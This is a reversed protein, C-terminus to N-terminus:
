SSIRLRVLGNRYVGATDRGTVNFYIWENRPLLALLAAVDSAVIRGREVRFHEMLYSQERLDGDLLEVGVVQEIPVRRGDELFELTLSRSSAAITERAAEVLIVDTGYAPHAGEGLVIALEGATRPALNADAEGWYGSEEHVEAHLQIAGSPVRLRLTGDSGTRGVIIDDVLVLVGKRAPPGRGEVASPDFMFVRVTLTALPAASSRTICAKLRGVSSAFATRIEVSLGQGAEGRVLAEVHTLKTLAEGRRHFRFLAMARRIQPALDLRGPEHARASEHLAHRFVSACSPEREAPGTQPEAGLAVAASGILVVISRGITRVIRRM